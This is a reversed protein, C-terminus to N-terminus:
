GGKNTNKQSSTVKFHVPNNNVQFASEMAAVYFSSQGQSQEKKAAEDTLVVANQVVM